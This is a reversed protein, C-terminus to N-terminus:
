LFDRCKKRIIKLATYLQNEVTKRSTKLLEAIEGSSLGEIRNLFFVTRCKESLHLRVTEHIKAELTRLSLCEGPNPVTKETIMKVHSEYKSRVQLHKYHDRILDHSIKITLPLFPLKPNLRLRKEWVKVFTDQLIDRSLEADRTKYFVNKYVLDKFKLFLEQFAEEDGERAREILSSIDQDM